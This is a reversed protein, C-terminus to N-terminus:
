NIEGEQIKRAAYLLFKRLRESNGKAAESIDRESLEKGKIGNAYNDASCVAAIPIKLENALTAENAATMSILDACSKYFRIEAKTELRPGKVQVITGKTRFKIGFASACLILKNRLSTSYGAESFKMQGDYFTIHGTLQMYDDAIVIDGIKIEENLIGTSYASIIQEAGLLKLATINARHEIMHPPKNGQHRQIFILSDKKYYEVDGYRTTIKEARIGNILGTELLGTGALIGIKQM